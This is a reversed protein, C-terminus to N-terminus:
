PLGASQDLLWESLGALPHSALLLLLRSGPTPIRKTEDPSVVVVIPRWCDSKRLRIKLEVVKAVRDHSRFDISQCHNPCITIRNARPLQSFNGRDTSPPSISVRNGRAVAVHTHRKCTHTYTHKHIHIYSCRLQKGVTMAYICICTARIVRHHLSLQRRPAEM